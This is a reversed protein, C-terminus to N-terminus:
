IRPPMSISPPAWAGRRETAQQARATGSVADPLARAMVGKAHEEAGVTKVIKATEDADRFDGAM